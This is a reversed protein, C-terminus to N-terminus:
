RLVAGADIQKQLAIANDYARKKADQSASKHTGTWQMWQYLQTTYIQIEYTSGIDTRGILYIMGPANFSKFLKLEPTNM